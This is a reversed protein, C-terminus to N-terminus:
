EQTKLSEKEVVGLASLCELGGGKFVGDKAGELYLGSKEVVVGEWTAKMGIRNSEHMGSSDPIRGTVDKSNGEGLHGGTMFGTPQKSDKM